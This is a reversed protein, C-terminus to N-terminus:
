QANFMKFIQLYYRYHTEEQNANQELYQEASKQVAQKTELRLKASLVALVLLGGILFSYKLHIKKM